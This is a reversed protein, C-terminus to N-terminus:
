GPIALGQDHKLVVEYAALVLGDPQVAFVQFSRVFDPLTSPLSLRRIMAELLALLTSRDRQMGVAARMGMGSCALDWLLRVKDADCHPLAHPIM